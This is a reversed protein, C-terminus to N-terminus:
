EVKSVAAATVALPRDHQSPWAEITKSPWPVKAYPPRRHYTPAIIEYWGGFEFLQHSQLRPLLLQQRHQRAAQVVEGSEVSVLKIGLEGVDFQDRASIITM